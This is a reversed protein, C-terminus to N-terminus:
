DGIEESLSEHDQDGELHLYDSLWESVVKQQRLLLLVKNLLHHWHGFFLLTIVLEYVLDRELKRVTFSVLIM